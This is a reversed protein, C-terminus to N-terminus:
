FVKWSPDARPYDSGNAAFVVPTESRGTAPADELKIEGVVPVELTGNGELDCRRWAAASSDKSRESRSRSTSKAKSPPEVMMASTVTECSAGAGRSSTGFRLPAPERSSAYSIAPSVKTTSPNETFLPSGTPVTTLWSGLGPSVAPSPAVIETRTLPLDLSEGIDLALRDLLGPL